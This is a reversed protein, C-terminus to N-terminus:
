ARSQPWPGRSALVAASAAQTNALADAEAKAQEAIAAGWEDDLSQDDITDSM